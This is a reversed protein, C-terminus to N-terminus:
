IKKYLGFAKLGVRNDLMVAVMIKPQLMPKFSQRPILKKAYGKCKKIFARVSTKRESPHTKLLRHSLAQCFYMLFQKGNKEIAAKIEADGEKITALFEVYKGFAQQYEEGNTLRSASQHLRYLFGEEKSIALYGEMCLKMWLEYDAFILWPYDVPIGGSRDYLESRMMYGTGMSDMTQTMEASLFEDAKMHGAMPRCKRVTQGDANIYIFHSQFLTANPNEAILKDMILLYEPHFVDDHGTVTMYENKKVGVIRSWNEGMSLKYGSPHVLIRHDDLSEIWERTGDTSNNDLVLLEFDPLTQALISHVCTKVYEGGNYVPLIISYKPM